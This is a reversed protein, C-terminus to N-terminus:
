APMAGIQRLLAVNDFMSWHEAFRGDVVRNYEVGSFRVARGTPAIGQFPGQHTGTLSWRTAVTDGASVSADITIRSDPFGETFAALFASWADSELPGPAGSLYARFDPTRIAREMEWDRENFAQIWRHNLRELDTAPTERGPTTEGPFHAPTEASGNVYPQRARNTM